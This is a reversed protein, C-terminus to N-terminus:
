EGRTREPLKGMFSIIQRIKGFKDFEVVDMGETEARTQETLWIGWTYRVWLGHEHKQLESTIELRDFALSGHVKAIFKAIMVAGSMQNQPDYLVVGPHVISALKELRISSDRENWAEAYTQLSETYSM